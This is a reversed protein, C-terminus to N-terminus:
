KAEKIAASITESDVSKSVKTSTIKETAMAVLDITENYLAKKVSSVEKVIDEHAAAIIRDAREKSKKDSEVALQEAQEKATTVIDGAEKQAEKLLSAVKEEAEKAKKEAEHAAKSSAEIEERRADVTKVLIPYVFKGMLWTLILFAVIQFVLMKWDIGLVALAGGSATTTEAFITLM